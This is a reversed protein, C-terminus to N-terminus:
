ESALFCWSLDRKVHFLLVNGQLGVMPIFTVAPVTKRKKLSSRNTNFFSCFFVGFCGVVLCDGRRRSGASGTKYFTPFSTVFLLYWASILGILLVPQVSSYYVNRLTVNINLRFISSKHFPASLQHFLSNVACSKERREANLGQVSFFTSM